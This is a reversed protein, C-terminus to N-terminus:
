RHRRQRAERRKDLAILAKQGVEIGDLYGSQQAVSLAEQYRSKASGWLEFKQELRGLRVLAQALQKDKGGQARLGEVRQRLRHFDALEADLYTGAAGSRDLVRDVAARSPPAKSPSFASSRKATPQSARDLNRRVKDLEIISSNLVSKDGCSRALAEARQLYTRARLYDRHRKALLGLRLLAKAMNQQSDARKATGLAQFLYFEARELDSQAMKIKGMLYLADFLSTPQEQQRALSLAQEGISEAEALRDLNLLLLGYYGLINFQLSSHGLYRATAVARKFAQDAEQSRGLQMQLRALRWWAEAHLPDWKVANRLLGMAATADRTFFFRGLGRALKARFRLLASPKVEFLALMQAQDGEDVSASYAQAAKAAAATILDSQAAEARLIGGYLAVCVVLSWVMVRIM